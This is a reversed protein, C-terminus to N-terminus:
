WIFQVEKWYTFHSVDYIFTNMTNYKYIEQGWYKIQLTKPWQYKCQIKTLIELLLKLQTNKKLFLVNQSIYTSEIEVDM